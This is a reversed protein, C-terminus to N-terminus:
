DNPLSTQQSLLQVSPLWHHEVQRQSLYQLTKKSKEKLLNAFSISKMDFVMLNLPGACSWQHSIPNSLVFCHIAKLQYERARIQKEMDGKESRAKGKNIENNRSGSKRNNEPSQQSDRARSCKEKQYVVAKRRGRRRRIIAFTKRRWIQRHSDSGVWINREYIAIQNRMHLFIHSVHSFCTKDDKNHTAKSHM